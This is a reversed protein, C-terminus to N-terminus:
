CTSPNACVSRDYCDCNRIDSNSTNVSSQNAQQTQGHVQVGIKSNKDSIDIRLKDPRVTIVVEPIDRPSMESFSISTVEDSLDIGNYTLRYRRGDWTVELM